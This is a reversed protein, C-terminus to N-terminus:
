STAAEEWDALMEHKMQTVWALVVALVHYRRLGKGEDGYGLLVSLADIYEDLVAAGDETDAPVSVTWTKSSRKALPKSKEPNRKGCTPCTDQVPRRRPLSVLPTEEGKLPGICAWIDTGSLAPEWWELMQLNTNWRIHARHGGVDGTVDNHHEMCLGCSNQVLVGDVSVWEYPQGRLYSKPWIHHRQQAMRGCRPAACGPPLTGPKGEVGRITPNIAPALTV